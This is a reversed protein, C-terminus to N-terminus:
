IRGLVKMTEEHNKDLEEMCRQLCWKESLLLMFTTNLNELWNDFMWQKSNESTVERDGVNINEEWYKRLFDKFKM